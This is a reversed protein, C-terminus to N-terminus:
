AKKSANADPGNVVREYYPDVVKEPKNGVAAAGILLIGAVASFQGVLRANIFKQSLFIDTRSFNYALTTGVVGVYGYTLLTFRNKFAFQKIREADWESNAGFLTPRSSVLSLEDERSLSFKQAFERDAKMAARDTETFFGATTAALVLSIRFPFTLRRYPLWLLELVPLIGMKAGELLVKNHIKDKEERRLRHAEMKDPMDVHESVHSMSVSM